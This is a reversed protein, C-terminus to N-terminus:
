YYLTKSKIKGEEDIYFLKAKIPNLNNYIVTLGFKYQYNPNTLFLQVKEEDDRCVQYKKAEIVLYHQLPIKTRTHVIIDPRAPKEKGQLYKKNKFYRNYEIDVYYDQKFEKAIYNEIYVALRHNICVEHLIRDMEDAQDYILVESESPLDILLSDNKKLEQFVNNLMKKLIAIDEKTAITAM